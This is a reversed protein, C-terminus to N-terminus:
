HLFDLILPIKSEFDSYEHSGQRDINIIAKDFYNITKKHDLVEDKLKILCLHNLPEELTEVKLRLLENFMETTFKYKKNSYYNTQPGILDKMNKLHSYIVPNITVSRLNYKNSLFSAYLGGLSSGILSINESNIKIVKEIEQIAKSPSNPLDILIIEFGLNKVIESNKLIQAKKSNSSSNFGHLYIIKM